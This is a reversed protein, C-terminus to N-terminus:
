VKRSRAKLPVESAVELKQMQQARVDRYRLVGDWYERDCEKLDRSLPQEILPWLEPEHHPDLGSHCTNCLTILNWDVTMGGHAWQRIHHLHLELDLHNEPRRGCVKCRYQDRKLLRMRQKPTPVRRLVDKSLYEVNILDGSPGQTCRHPAIAEPLYRSAISKEILAHGGFMTYFILFQEDSNVILHPRGLVSWGQATARAYYTDGLCAQRLELKPNEKTFGVCISDASTTLNGDGDMTLTIAYYQHDPHIAGLTLTDPDKSADSM